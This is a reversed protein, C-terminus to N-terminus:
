GSIDECFEYLLGSQTILDGCVSIAKQDCIWHLMELSIYMFLSCPLYLSCIRSFTNRSLTAVPTKSDTGYLSSHKTCIYDKEKATPKQLTCSGKKNERQQFFPRQKEAPETKTALFTQPISQRALLM